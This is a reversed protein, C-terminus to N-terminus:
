HLNIITKEINSFVKSHELNDYIKNKLVIISDSKSLNNDDLNTIM